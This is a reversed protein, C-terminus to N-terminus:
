VNEECCYTIKLSINVLCPCIILLNILFAKDSVRTSNLKSKIVQPPPSVTVIKVPRAHITSISSDQRMTACRSSSSLFNRRHRFKSWTFCSTRACRLLNIFSKKCRRSQRTLASSECSVRMLDMSPSPM